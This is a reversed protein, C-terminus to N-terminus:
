RHEDGFMSIKEQIIIDTTDKTGDGYDFSLEAVKKNVTIERPLVPLKFRRNCDPCFIHDSYVVLSGNKCRPCTLGTDRPLTAM